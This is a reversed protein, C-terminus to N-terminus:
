NSKVVRTACSNMANAHLFYQRNIQEDESNNITVPTM